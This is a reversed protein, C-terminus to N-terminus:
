DNRHSEFVFHDMFAWFSIYGPSATKLNKGHTNFLRKKTERQQTIKTLISSSQLVTSQQNM